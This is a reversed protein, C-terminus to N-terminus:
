ILDLGDDALEAAQTELDSVSDSVLRSEWGAGHTWVFEKLEERTADRKKSDPGDILAAIFKRQEPSVEVTEYINVKM